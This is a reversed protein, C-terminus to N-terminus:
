HVCEQCPRHLIALTWMQMRDNNNRVLTNYEVTRFHLIGIGKLGIECSFCIYPAKSPM